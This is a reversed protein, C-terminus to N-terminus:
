EAITVTLSYEVEAAHGASDEATVTFEHVGVTPTAWALAGTEDDLTMGSPMGAASYTYPAFGGSAAVTVDLTEADTIADLAAPLISVADAVVQAVEVDSSDGLADTVRVVATGSFADTPEGSIAGTAPDLALGSALGDAEELVAFALPAVGGTVTVAAAITDGVAMVELGAYSLGMAAARVARGQAEWLAATAENVMFASGPATDAGGGLCFGGLTVVRVLGSRGAAAIVEAPDPAPDSSVAELAIHGAAAFAVAQEATIEVGVTVTAGTAVDGSAADICFPLLVRAM